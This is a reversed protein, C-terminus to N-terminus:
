VFFIRLFHKLLGHRRLLVGDVGFNLIRSLLYIPFVLQGISRVLVLMMM